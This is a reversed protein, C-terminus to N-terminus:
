PLVSRINTPNPPLSMVAEEPPQQMSELGSVTPQPKEADTSTIAEPLLSEPLDYLRILEKLIQQPAVGLQQLLPIAMMFEQKQVAESIPTAGSDQAYYGFNGYLDSSRILEPRGNLLIIDTEEGLFVRMMSAYLEAIKEIAADRERALRGVETSTYAALATIETATAKTAEGRTFPAMVSGRQLDDGVQAIYSQLETPVPSHPVAMISGHLQQGQSLDVEIFEGDQGQAIKSLSEDSFVGKEIVWQRAARRVMSAQYTRIINTEQVQDYVRRLASYGRLPMDPM